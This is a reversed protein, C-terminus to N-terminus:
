LNFFKPKNQEYETIDIIGLSDLLQCFEPEQILQSDIKGMENLLDGFKLLASWSDEFSSLQCCLKGSLPIWEFVFEGSTGGDPHYMGVLVSINENRNKAYWTRSSRVYGRKCGDHNRM